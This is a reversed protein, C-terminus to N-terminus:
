IGVHITMFHVIYLCEHIQENAASHTNQDPQFKAPRWWHCLLRLQGQAEDGGGTGTGGCRNDFTVRNCSSRCELSWVSSRRYMVHMLAIIDLPLVDDV